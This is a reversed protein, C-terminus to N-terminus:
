EENNLISIFKKANNTIQTKDARTAGRPVLESGIGFLTCGAKYYERMNDLSIGGVAMIKLNPFPGHLNKIYSPGINNAPFLKVIEINFELAEMIEGPTFVGPLININLKTIEKALEKNWGPTIIYKAGIAIAKKAQELTTVTGVGLHIEEGFRQNLRQICELGKEEDSLSVEVWKVGGELLAEQIDIVESPSIGRIIAVITGNEIDINM